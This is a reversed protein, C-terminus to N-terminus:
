RENRITKPTKRSNKISFLSEIEQYLHETNEKESENEETLLSWINPEPNLNPEPNPDSQVKINDVKKWGFNKLKKISQRIPAFRSRRRPTTRCGTPMTAGPPPPPGAGPAPPAGPPAPPGAGPAPPAGTPPPPGAGPAPPAGTPPPPGAGPAPPAGPPSPPGGRSPPPPHGAVIPLPASCNPCITVVPPTASLQQINVAPLSENVTPCPDPTPLTPVDLPKNEPFQLGNNINRPLTGTFQRNDSSSISGFQVPNQALQHSPSQLSNAPLPLMPFHQNTSSPPPQPFGTKIPSLPLASTVSTHHQPPPPPPLQGTSTRRQPPSKTGQFQQTPDLDYVVKKYQQSRSPPPPLRSTPNGGRPPLGYSQNAHPLQHRVNPPRPLSFARSSHPPPPPLSAAPTSSGTPPPSGPPLKSSPLHQNQKSM